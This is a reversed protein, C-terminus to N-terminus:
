GCESTCTQQDSNLQFGPHCSCTFSGPASLCIQECEHNGEACLDVAAPCVHVCVRACMCVCVHVCGGGGQISSDHTQCARILPPPLLVM